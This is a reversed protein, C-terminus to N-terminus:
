KKVGFVRHRSYREVLPTAINMLLISFMVGEPYAGFIRIVATILGAGISFIIQGKLNIPTTSYDTAMFFAGLMLGGAFLMYFSQYLNFGNFIFQFVFVSLIYFLPIHYRIVKTYILFVGGLILALASTEGLSGGINGILLNLISPIEKSSEKILSLPTPGSVLDIANVFRGMIEPYSITLFVRAGLAPNIFNQGIGGFLQKVIVIAFLSGVIAIWIPATPPLNMAILMGTVVASYDNITIKSKNIKQFLYEFGVSSCVSVMILLFSKLGFYFTSILLQPLLAVCVLLMIKSVNLETRVHPSSSLVLDKM